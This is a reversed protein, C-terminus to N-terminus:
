FITRIEDYNKNVEWLNFLAGHHRERNFADELADEDESAHILEFENDEYEAKYIRSNSM